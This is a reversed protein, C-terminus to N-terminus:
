GCLHVGGARLLDTVDREVLAAVVVFLVLAVVFDVVVFDDVVFDDVVFDDVPRIVDM